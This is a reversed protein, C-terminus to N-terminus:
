ARLRAYTTSLALALFVWFGINFLVRGLAGSVGALLFPLAPLLLVALAGVGVAVCATLALYRGRRKSIIRRIIESIIGGVFPGAFIAIIISFFGLNFLLMVFAAIAGLVVGIIGALVHDVPTANYYGARQEGLCEKCRYGVPTRQVCKM